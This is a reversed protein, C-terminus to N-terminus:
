DKRCENSNDDPDDDRNQGCLMAHGSLDPKRAPYAEPNVELRRHTFITSPQEVNDAENPAADPM